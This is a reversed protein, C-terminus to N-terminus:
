TDYSMSNKGSLVEDSGKAKTQQNRQEAVDCWQVRGLCGKAEYDDAVRRDAFIGGFPVAAAPSLIDLAIEFVCNFYNIEGPASAACFCENVLPKPFLSQFGFRVNKQDLEAM